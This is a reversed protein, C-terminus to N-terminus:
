DLFQGAKISGLLVNGQKSSGMVPDQGLGTLGLACGLTMKIDDKLSCTTESHDREKLSKVLIEYM